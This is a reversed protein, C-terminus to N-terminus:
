VLADIKEQLAHVIREAAFGDGYVKSSKAMSLRAREDTLLQAVAARVAERQCGISRLVGARVGEPRETCERLVLTPLGLYVAEEQLGGSDTLLLTARSLLRHMLPLPLPEILHARPCDAFAAVAAQRVRPSPHVPFLLVADECARLAAAIGRLMDLMQQPHLERRHTTLLLLRKGQMLDRPLPSGDLHAVNDLRPESETTQLTLRLADIATNGCIVINKADRGERLLTRMADDTPPLLLDAAADISTRFFEEPFPAHPDKTRLGAEIHIVPIGCLFACLMGAFATVTDGHVVVARPRHAAFLPPLRDLLLKILSLPTQAPHMLGLDVDARCGFHSLVADVMDRHQGTNVILHRLPTKKM